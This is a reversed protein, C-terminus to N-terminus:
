QREQGVAVAETGTPAVQQTMMTRATPSFLDDFQTELQSRFGALSASMRQRVNDSESVLSLFKEFLIESDFNRMDVCYRSLGLARMLEAVKPHHSIALVPKNLLLAFVVGHFRCTVVYDMAAIRSLLEGVSSVPEYAPLSMAHRSGLVTRLHEIETHDAGVDSGFLQLRYSLASVRLSFNALKEIFEDQISQPDDPPTLLDSFPFPMPAIGVIPSQRPVGNASPEVTLSFVNDPFVHSHRQFGLSVALSQSQQDRFSVYDAALLARKVFFRSLPHNLPGAGVNLFLCRVGAIKALLTWTFLAYPFSWPGGRETLQGGGSIVLLDCTKLRRYSKALFLLEVFLSRPIRLLPNRVEGARYPFGSGDSGSDPDKVPAYGISWRHRRLPFATVGHRQATDDPNMSFVVIDAGPQRERINGIVVDIIADDGLNGGGTHHLIAIRAANEKM